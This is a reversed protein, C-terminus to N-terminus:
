GGARGWCGGLLTVKGCGALEEAKTVLEDGGGEAWLRRGNRVAGPLEKQRHSPRQRIRSGSLLALLTTVVHETKDKLM